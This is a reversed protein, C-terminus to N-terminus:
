YPEQPTLRFQLLRRARRHRRAIVKIQEDYHAVQADLYRLEHTHVPM